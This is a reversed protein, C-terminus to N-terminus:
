NGFIEWRPIAILRRQLIRCQLVNSEDNNRRKNSRLMKKIEFM